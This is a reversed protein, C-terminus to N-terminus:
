GDRGPLGKEYAEISGPRVRNCMRCAKYHRGSRLGERYAEAEPGNWLETFTAEALSGLRTPGQCCLLVTGDDFVQATTWPDACAVGRPARGIEPRRRRLRRCRGRVAQILSKRITTFSYLRKLEDWIEVEIGLRAGALCAAELAGRVRAGDRGPDPLEVRTAGDFVWLPKFVLREIRVRRCFEVGAALEDLNRLMVICEATARIRRRAGGRADAFLGLNEELRDFRSGLMISEYVGKSFGNVSFHFEAILEVARRAAGARSLLTGNTYVEVYVRRNARRVAELREFIDGELFPEGCGGLVVRRAWPVVELVKEFVERSMAPFVDGGQAHTNCMFCALNCRRTLDLILHRPPRLLM